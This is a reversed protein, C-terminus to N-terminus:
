QVCHLTHIIKQIFLWMLATEIRVYNRRQIRKYTEKGPDELLLVPVKLKKRSVIKTHLMYVAEDKGVFSAKFETGDLFYSQKKTEIDIPYDVVLHSDIYDVLRCRYKKKQQNTNKDKLELVITTGMEVM